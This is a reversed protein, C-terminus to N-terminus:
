FIYGLFILWLIGLYAIKKDIQDYTRQINKMQNDLMTVVEHRKDFLSQSKNLLQSEDADKPVSKLDDLFKNEEEILSNLTEKSFRDMNKLQMLRSAIMNPLGKLADALVEM